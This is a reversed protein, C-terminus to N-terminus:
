RGKGGFRIEVFWDAIAGGQPDFCGGGRGQDDGWANWSPPFDPLDGLGFRFVFLSM